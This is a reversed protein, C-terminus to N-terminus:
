RRQTKGLPETREALWDPYSKGQHGSEGVIGGVDVADRPEHRRHFVDFPDLHLRKVLKAGEFPLGDLEVVFEVIRLSGRGFQDIPHDLLEASRAAISASRTM